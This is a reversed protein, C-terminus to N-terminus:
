DEKPKFIPFLCILNSDLKKEETIESMKAVAMAGDEVDIWYMEEIIRSSMIESFTTQMHNQIFNVSQDEIDM